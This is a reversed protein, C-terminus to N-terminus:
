TGEERSWAEELAHWADLIIPDSRDMNKAMEIFEEAENLEGMSLYCVGV